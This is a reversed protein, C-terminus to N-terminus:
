KDEIVEAWEEGGNRAALEKAMQEGLAQGFMNGFSAAVNVFIKNM